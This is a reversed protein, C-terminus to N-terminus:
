TSLGSRDLPGDSLTLVTPKHPRFGV